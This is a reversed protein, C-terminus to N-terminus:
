SGIESNPRASTPTPPEFRMTYQAASLYLTEFMERGMELQEKAPKPARRNDLVSVTTQWNVRAARCAIILGECREDAMLPEIVAVPAGSLVALSAIVNAHEGRMAFRNVTSDNLKGTRNLEEVMALVKSYDTPLGPQPAAAKTTLGEIESKIRERQSISAAKLLRARVTNSANALLDRLLPTPLDPRLGAAEAVTEDRGAISLLAGSTKDSFRAGPNKVLVRATEKGARKLVLSTLEESLMPRRAIALLHQQSRSCAIQALEDDSLCSAGTLVPAAVTENEHRALRRVTEAPAPELAALIVSIKALARADIREILRVLVDDFIRVQEPQLRGAGSRFLDAVQQLMRMRREPSGTKAAAEVELVLGATAVATM